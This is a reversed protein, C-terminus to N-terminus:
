LKSLFSSWTRLMAEELVRKNPKAAAKEIEEKYLEIQQAKLLGNDWVWEVGEMIGNVFAGPASPDAVIDAATALTFDDQVEMIGNRDKLSGMGRSSVGLSGGGQIINRAINGMPTELIKARGVINSGDRRLETIMHSIRDLNIHPGEPHGLEGFARKTNVYEKVYRNVEKEMVPMPYIRGNRNKLDAQMFVGEIFFDKKGDEKEETVLQVEELVECILKM